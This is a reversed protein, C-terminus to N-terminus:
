PINTFRWSGDITYVDYSFDYGVKLSYTDDHELVLTGDHAVIVVEWQNYTALLDSYVILQENISYGQMDPQAIGQLTGYLMLENMSKEFNNKTMFAQNTAITDYMIRLARRNAVYIMDPIIQQEMNQVFAGISGVRQKQSSFNIDEQQSLYLQFLLYIVLIM